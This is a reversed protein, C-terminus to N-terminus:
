LSFYDIKSPACIVSECRSTAEPVFCATWIRWIVIILPAANGDLHIGYCLSYGRFVIRRKWIISNQLQVVQMNLLRGGIFFPCCLAPCISHIVDCGNKTDDASQGISEGIGSQELCDVDAIHDAGRPLGKLVPHLHLFHFLFLYYPAM